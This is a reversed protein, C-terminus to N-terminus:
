TLTFSQYEFAYNFTGTGGFTNSYGYLSQGTLLIVSVGNAILSSNVTNFIDYRKFGDSTYLGGGGLTYTDTQITVLYIQGAPVAGLLLVPPISNINGTSNAIPNIQVANNNLVVLNANITSLNAAVATLTDLIYNISGGIAQIAGESVASLVRSAEIQIYAASSPINM